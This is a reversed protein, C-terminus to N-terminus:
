TSKEMALIAIWRRKGRNKKRFRLLLATADVGGKWFNWAGRKRISGNIKGARRGIELVATPAELEPLRLHCPGGEERLCLHRARRRISTRNRRRRCHWQKHAPATLSCAECRPSSRGRPGEVVGRALLSRPPARGDTQAQQLGSASVDFHICHRLHPRHFCDSTLLHM